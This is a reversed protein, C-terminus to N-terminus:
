KNIKLVLRYRLAQKLNRGHIVNEEQDHSNAVLKKLKKLKWEKLCFSCIM